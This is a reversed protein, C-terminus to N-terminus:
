RPAPGPPSPCGPGAAPPRTDSRPDRALADGDNADRSTRMWGCISPRSVATAVTRGADDAEHQGDRAAVQRRQQEHAAGGPGLFDRTRSASPAVRPWSTRCRSVSLRSSDSAPPMAPQTAPRTPPGCARRSRGASRRRDSGRSGRAPRRPRADREDGADREAQRRRQLGRPDIEHRRQAAVALRSRGVRRRQVSFFASTTNWTATDTSSSPPVLTKRCISCADREAGDAKGDVAHGHELRVRAVGVDVSACVRAANSSTRRRIAARGPRAPRPPRRVAQRHLAGSLTTDDPSATAAPVPSSPAAPTAPEIQAPGPKKSVSRMGM